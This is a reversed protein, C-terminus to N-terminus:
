GDVLFLDEPNVNQRTWSKMAAPSMGHERLCTEVKQFADKAAPLSDCFKDTSISYQSKLKDAEDQAIAKQDDAIAKQLDAKDKEDQLKQKVPDPASSQSVATSVMVTVFSGCLLAFITAQAARCWSAIDIRLVKNMRFAGTIDTEVFQGRAQLGWSFTASTEPLL